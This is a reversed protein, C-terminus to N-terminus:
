GQFVPSGDYLVGGQCNRDNPNACPDYVPQPPPPPAARANRAPEPERQVSAAPRGRGDKERQIAETVAKEPTYVSVRDEVITPATAGKTKPPPENSYNVVGREDVWKYMEGAATPASALLLIAFPAFSRTSIPMM